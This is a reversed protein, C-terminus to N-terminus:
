LSFSKLSMDYAGKAATSSGTCFICLSDVAGGGGGGGPCSVAEGPGLGWVEITLQGSDTVAYFREFDWLVPGGIWWEGYQENDERDTPSYGTGEDAWDHLLQRVIAKKTAVEEDDEQPPWSSPASGRASFSRRTLLLPCTVCCVRRGQPSLAPLCCETSRARRMPM